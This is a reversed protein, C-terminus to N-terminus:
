GTPPASRKGRLRKMGFGVIMLTGFLVLTGTMGAIAQRWAAPLGAPIEYDPMPAQTLADGEKIGHKQMSSELGDPAESAYLGLIGAIGLSLILLGVVLRRM